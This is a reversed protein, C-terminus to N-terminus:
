VYNWGEFQMQISQSGVHRYYASTVFQPSPYEAEHLPLEAPECAYGPSLFLECRRWKFVFFARWGM